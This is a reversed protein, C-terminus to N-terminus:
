SIIIKNFLETYYPYINNDNSESNIFVHAPSSEQVDLGSESALSTMFADRFRLSRYDGGSNRLVFQKYKNDGTNFLDAKFRNQGYKKRAILRLSKEPLYKTMGGFIKIGSNQSVIREGKENFIEVFNEREWNREWNVNRYHNAITDFYARPGKVYIGKYTNFLFDNDISISVVKLNTNFGIFYSFSGLKRVSDAFSILLSIARTKDILLSDPFVKKEKDFNNEDSYFLKGEEVKLKLYFPENYFGAEHSFEIQHQSHLLSCFFMLCISIWKNM